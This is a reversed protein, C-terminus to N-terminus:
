YSQRYWGSGVMDQYIVVRQGEALRVAYYLRSTPRQRWWEDDIRWSDEITSITQWRGTRIAEPLHLPGERVTIPEPVNVPKLTDAHLTKRTNQVM